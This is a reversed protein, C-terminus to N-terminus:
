LSGEEHESELAARLREMALRMRSKVTGLPANLDEAIQSHSHESFYSRMVVDRQDPPLTAMAKRVRDARERATMMTDAADPEDPAFAPDEPDPQPRAERRLRDIRKNRAIAFIWTSASAREPDFTSARRWVAVFAEQAIEEAMDAAMGGRIMVAKIRPAFHSFLEAFATRDRQIAVASLRAEWLEGADGEV